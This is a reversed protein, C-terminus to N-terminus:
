KAATPPHVTLWLDATSSEYGEIKATVVRPAKVDGKPTATIRIATRTPTASTGSFRLAVSKPDPKGTPSVPTVSVGSPLGTVSWELEAAFGNKPNLTVPVDLSQGSKLTLRDSAVTPEFGPTSPVVRLRYFSRPGGAAYQDRVEFTYAGDAPPTFNTELDANLAAEATAMPKTGADIVRLTPALPSGLSAADIRIALPKGKTGNVTLRIVEGPKSVRGTATFPPVLPSAPATATFDHCPHSERIVAAGTASWAPHFREEVAKWRWTPEALNWGHLTLVADKGREVALPAAFDIVGGTTLTLRYVCADSGFHRISSDPQSPFAFLRLLHTGDKTATYALQPDLGRHDHNQELVTGDASAIQLVADIPSRLTQNAEVAAVLTQGKKLPVAFVDVDGTKALKGNVVSAQDIPQPKVPTDNPEVEALEPLTGVLFPRLQSAGTDDFLRLWCVGPVADKGVVVSLKGKEKGVTVSLATDSAWPKVPWADFTGTATVEVTTGRQGGAPFLSTLTPPAASSLSVVSACLCLSLLQNTSM